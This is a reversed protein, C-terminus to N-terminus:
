RPGGCIRATSSISCTSARSSRRPRRGPIGEFHAPRVLQVPQGQPRPQPAHRDRGSQDPGAAHEDASRCGHRGPAAGLSVLLPLQRRRGRSRALAAVREPSAAPRSRLLGMRALVRRDPRVPGRPDQRLPVHLPRARQRRRVQGELVHLLGPVGLPERVAQQLRGDMGLLPQQREVRDTTLTGIGNTGGPGIGSSWPSGLEAANRDVFRTLHTPRRCTTSSSARSAPFSRAIWEPASRRDHAPEPFGQRRM